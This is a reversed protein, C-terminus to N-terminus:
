KIPYYRLSVLHRTLHKHRLVCRCDPEEELEFTELILTVRMTPNPSYILWDCSQQNDYNQDGYKAHSYFRQSIEGAM